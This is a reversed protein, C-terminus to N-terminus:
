RLDIATADVALKPYKMHLAELASVIVRAVVLNRSWKKNSPVVYWPANSTSTRSM